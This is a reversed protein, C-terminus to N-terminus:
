DQPVGFDTSNSEIFCGLFAEPSPQTNIVSCTESRVRSHLVSPASLWLILISLSLITVAAMLKGTVQQKYRIKYLNLCDLIRLIKETSDIPSHKANLKM